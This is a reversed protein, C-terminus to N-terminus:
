SGLVRGELNQLETDRHPGLSPTSSHFGWTFRILLFNRFGPGVWTLFALTCLFSAQLSSASGSATKDPPMAFPLASSLGAHTRLSSCSLCLRGGQAVVGASKLLHPTASPKSYAVFEVPNFLFFLEDAPISEGQTHSEPCTECTRRPFSAKCNRIGVAKQESLIKGKEHAEEEHRQM